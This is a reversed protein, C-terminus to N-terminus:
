DKRLFWIVGLSIMGILAAVGISIIVHWYPWGSVYENGTISSNEPEPDDIDPVGDGDDDTDENNGIGDKDTDTTESDDLPFADTIDPEGDGDDDTDANNGIKDGDTDLTENADNPFADNIDPVGDSDSDLQEIILTFSSFDGGGNGDSVMVRVTFTGPQATGSLIGTATDISLWDANTILSWILTDVDIDTADYDVSYADAETANNLDATTIVPQDNTNKVTVTVTGTATGGNGDSITYTFTDTGFFDADPEYILRTSGSAITVAGHTGQTVASITLTEEPDPVYDDNGLVYIVTSSDEDLTASDDVALPNDNVNEVTITVTATSNFEGDTINYTFTDTGFFDADPVYTLDAGANTITVTGNTGQTVANISIADIDVDNALVNITTATSDENVTAADNGAAPAINNITLTTAATSILPEPDTV